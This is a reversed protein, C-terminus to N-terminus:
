RLKKVLIKSRRGSQEYKERRGPPLDEPSGETFGGKNQFYTFAQTSLAILERLELERAKNEVFQILKRGIGQNEHSPNVFLCALEGKGLEPHVHLAVCGVPNKDIEFLYYDALSKEISTRTRKVLEDSAVSRKILALLSRVDKKLARRIQQYDDAYVLTGVGENSFVEALLGEDVRGNILHVRQVGARCAAAAHQAKSLMEPTFGPSQQALLSELEAVLIQRIGRGQHQLTDTTTIFILKIAKLAGAVAVAVGDSNVRYTRGEGDFGLPPIVPIIGHALLTQLLETDVRDIKGTFLQDVGQLIGLPHAVLANTSAARLDNASLGELIEHTLRNAATLALKLTAADTIGDGDIDSPTIQREEALAKIQAAAGHVLVVRISLSRLVAIDLLINAFNEDTVIAGDVAIIFTRERFQPIYHLIGRLDTPKM